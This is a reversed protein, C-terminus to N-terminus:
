NGPKQYRGKFENLRDRCGMSLDIYNGQLCDLMELPDGKEFNCRADMEKACAKKLVEANAKAGEVWARCETSMKDKREEYCRLLRGGGKTYDGCINKVDEACPNVSQAYALPATSLTLLVATAAVLVSKVAFITRHM